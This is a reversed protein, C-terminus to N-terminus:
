SLEARDLFSSFEGFPLGVGNAKIAIPTLGVTIQNQSGSDAIVKECARLNQVPGTRDARKDLTTPLGSAAVGNARALVHPNACREAVRVGSAPAHRERKRADRRHMM